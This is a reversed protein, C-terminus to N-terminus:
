EYPMIEKRIKTEIAPHCVMTNNGIFLVKDLPVFETKTYLKWCKKIIRKKKSKPTFWRVTVAKIMRPDTIIRVGEFKCALNPFIKADM